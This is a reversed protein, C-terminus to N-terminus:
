SAKGAACSGGDDEWRQMTSARPGTSRRRVLTRVARVAFSVVGVLMFLKRM